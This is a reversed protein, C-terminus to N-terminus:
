VVLEKIKVRLYNQRHGIKKHHNKRRKYKYAIVKEGRISSLLEAKVLANNIFPFGVLTKGESHLFLVESFVVEKEKDYIDSVEVDIIDGESVKYQKGGTKIIAYSNM